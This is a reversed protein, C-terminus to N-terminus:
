PPAEACTRARAVQQRRIGSAVSSLSSDNLNTVQCHSWRRVVMCHRVPVRAVSQVPLRMETTCLM